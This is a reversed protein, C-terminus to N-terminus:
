PKSESPFLAVGKDYEKESEVEDSAAKPSKLQTGSRLM